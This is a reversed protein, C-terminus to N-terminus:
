FLYVAVEICIGLSECMKGKESLQLNRRMKVQVHSFVECIQHILDDPRFKLYMLINLKKFRSLNLIIYCNPILAQKVIYLYM